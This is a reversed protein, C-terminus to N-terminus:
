IENEKMYDDGFFIIPLNCIIFSGTTCNERVKMEKKIM